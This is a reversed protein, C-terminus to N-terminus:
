FPSLFVKIGQSDNQPKVLGKSQLYNERVSAHHVIEMKVILAIKKTKHKIDRSIYTHSKQYNLARHLGGQDIM